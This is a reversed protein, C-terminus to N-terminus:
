CYPSALHCETKEWFLKIEELKKILLGLERNCSGRKKVLDNGLSLQGLFPNLLHAVDLMLGIVDRV